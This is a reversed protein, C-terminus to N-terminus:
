IEIAVYRITISVTGSVTRTLYFTFQSTTITSVSCFATEPSAIAPCVTVAPLSSFRGAPLTVVVSVPTNAATTTATFSGGASAKISSVSGISTTSPLTVTGTFTPSDKPAFLGTAWDYIAKATLFLTNSATNGTMTTAKNATNEKADLSTQLSTINSITHTHSTNAKGSLGTDVYTKPTYERTGTPTDTHGVLAGTMTDGTKAVFGSGTSISNIQTQINSTVGDLYGIETSSVSGISTTSPLTVTGTFTPSAKPAFLSTVWDTIAKVSPYKTTSAIDTTVANSKNAIDEKDDLSAQLNTVNSITHTHSTNAKGNIQTQIASTVGNLYGIETSSVSGISTTSPLTITGTFTSLLKRDVYYIYYKDGAISPTTLTIQTASTETFSVTTFDTNTATTKFVKIAGTNVNYSDGTPLTIATTGAAPSVIHYSVVADTRASTDNNAAYLVLFNQDLTNETVTEGNVFDHLQSKSVQAM